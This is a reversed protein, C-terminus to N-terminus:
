RDRAAMRSAGVIGEFSSNTTPMTRLDFTTVVLGLALSFKCDPSQVFLDWRPTTQTM